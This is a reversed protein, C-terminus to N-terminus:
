KSNFSIATKACSQHLLLPSDFLFLPPGGNFDYVGVWEREVTFEGCPTEGLVAGGPFDPVRPEHAVMQFVGQFLNTDGALREDFADVLQHRRFYDYLLVSM